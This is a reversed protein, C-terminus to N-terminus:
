GIVTRCSNTLDGLWISLSGVEVVRTVDLWEISLGMTQTVPDTMRFRCHVQCVQSALCRNRHDNFYQLFVARHSTAVAQSFKGLSNM